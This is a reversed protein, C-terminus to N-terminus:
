KESWAVVTTIPKSELTKEYGCIVHAHLHAITAGTFKDDGFRMTMSAGPSNHLKTIKETFNFYEIKAEDTLEDMNTIHDRHILLYHVKTGTYPYDNKTIIWHKGYEEIRNDHYEELYEKCFVCVGKELLKKMKELQEPTRANGLNLM